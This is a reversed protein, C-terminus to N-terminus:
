TEVEHVLPAKATLPVTTLPFAVRLRNVIAALRTAASDPSGTLQTALKHRAVVLDFMPSGYVKVQNRFSWTSSASWASSPNRELLTLLTEREGGEHYRGSFFAPLYCCDPDPLTLCGRRDTGLAVLADGGAPRAWGSLIGWLFGSRYRYTDKGATAPRHASAPTAPTSSASMGYEKLAKRAEESAWMRSQFTEYATPAVFCRTELLLVTLDFMAAHRPGLSQLLTAIRELCGRAASLTAPEEEMIDDLVKLAAQAQSDEPLNATAMGGNDGETAAGTLGRSAFAGDQPVVNEEDEDDNDEETDPQEPQVRRPRGRPRKVAPVSASSPARRAPITAELHRDSPPASKRLGRSATPGTLMAPHQVTDSPALVARVTTAIRKAQSEPALWLYELVEQESMMRLPGLMRMERPQRRLFMKAKDLSIVLSQQRSAKLEDAEAQAEEPSFGYGGRSSLLNPLAAHESLIWAMALSAWRVVWKPLKARGDPRSCLVSNRIGAQALMEYDAEGADEGSARLLLANRDLFTHAQAMIQQQPTNATNTHYLFSGRCDRSGCLCIAHRPEKESETEARYDLTLEEGEAVPRTTYIGVVLRGGAVITIAKCTPMCSHAMRATFNGKQSADVHLLDYGPATAAPRELVTNYYEPLGMRMRSRKGLAFSRAPASQQREAWAWTSYLEGLYPGVFAQAPLGGKKQCVVGQGKPWLRFYDRDEIPGEPLPLGTRRGAAKFHREVSEVVRAVTKCAAVATTNGNAQVCDNLAELVAMINWGADELANAQPLLLAEIFHDKWNDSEATDGDAAMAKCRGLAEFINSRTFRDIGWMNGERYEGEALSPPLADLVATKSDIMFQKAAPHDARLEVETGSQDVVRAVLKDCLARKDVEEGGEPAVQYADILQYPLEAWHERRWLGPMQQEHNRAIFPLLARLDPDSRAAAQAAAQQQARSLRPPEDPLSPSKQEQVVPSLQPQTQPPLSRNRPPETQRQEADASPDRGHGTAAHLLAALGLNSQQGGSGDSNASNESFSQQRTRLRASASRKGVPGNRYAPASRKRTRM